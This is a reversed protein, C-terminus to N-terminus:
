GTINGFSRGTLLIMTQVENQLWAATVYRGLQIPIKHLPLSATGNRDQSM